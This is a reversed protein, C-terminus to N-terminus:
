FSTKQTRNFYYGLKNEQLISTAFETDPKLSDIIAEREEKSTFELLVAQGWGGSSRIALLYKM